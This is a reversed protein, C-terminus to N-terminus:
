HGRPFNGCLWSQQLCRLGPQIRDEAAPRLHSGRLHCSLWIDTKKLICFCFVNPDWGRIPGLSRGLGVEFLLPRCVRFKLFQFTAIVEESPEFYDLVRFKPLKSLVNRRFGPKVCLSNKLEKPCSIWLVVM